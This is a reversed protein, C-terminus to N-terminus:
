VGGPGSSSSGPLELWCARRHLYLSLTGAFPRQGTGIERSSRTPLWPGSAALTGRVTIGGEPTVATSSRTVIAEYDGIKAYLEQASPKKIEDVEFGHQRLDTIGEAAITDIVLVRM